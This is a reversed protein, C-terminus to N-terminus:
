LPPWVRVWHLQAMDPTVIYTSADAGERQSFFREESDAPVSFVDVAGRGLAEEAAPRGEAILRSVQAAFGVPNISWKCFVFRSRQFREVISSIKSLELRGCEGWFVVEGSTEDLSVCDPTYRDGIV